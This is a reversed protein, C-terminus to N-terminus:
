INKILIGDFYYIILLHYYFLWSLIYPEKKQLLHFSADGLPVSRFIFLYGLNKEDRTNKGDFKFEQLGRWTPSNKVSIKIKGM